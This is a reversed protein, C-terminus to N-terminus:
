RSFTKYEQTKVKVVDLIYLFAIAVIIVHYVVVVLFVVVVVVDYKGLVLIGDNDNGVGQM